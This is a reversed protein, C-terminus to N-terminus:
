FHSAYTVDLILCLYRKVEEDYANRGVGCSSSTGM